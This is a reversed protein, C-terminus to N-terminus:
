KQKFLMYKVYQDAAGPQMKQSQDREEDGQKIYNAVIDDSIPQRSVRSEM